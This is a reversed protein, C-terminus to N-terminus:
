RIAFTVFPHQEGAINIGADIVEKPFNTTTARHLTVRGKKVEDLLLRHLEVKSTKLGKLVDSITVATIGGQQTKLAEYVPRVQDLSVASAPKATAESSVEPPHAEPRLQELLPDRHLYFKSRRADKVEVIRGESKLASLADGFLSKVIPKVTDELKSISTLKLGAGCLVEEIRGAMLDYSPAHEALFYRKTRGIKVPGRVSGESILQDIKSPAVKHKKKLETATVGQHAAQKLALIVPDHREM